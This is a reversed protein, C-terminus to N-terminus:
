SINENNVKFYSVWEENADRKREGSIGGKNRGKSIEFAINSLKKGESIYVPLSATNILKMYDLTHGYMTTKDYPPDIYIVGSTAKVNLTKIEGQYGKVGYMKDVLIEMREFLTNPMPMMPNVHSRRNSTETPLWYNRFSTNKWQNNEIWIAKSGFSASQLILFVYPTDIEASQKSLEKVYDQIKSIDKPVADCHEKFREIDFIGNGVYKWLLGWPGADIMTICNPDHGRNILQISIAGSGCCFDFFNDNSDIKIIDLIQDAIRQKGGQYAVPPVLKM